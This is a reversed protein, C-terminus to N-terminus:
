FKILNWLGPQADPIDASPRISSVDQYTLARKMLFIEGLPPFLFCLPWALEVMGLFACLVSSFPPYRFGGPPEKFHVLSFYVELPWYSWAPRHLPLVVPVSM